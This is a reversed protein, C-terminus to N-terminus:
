DAVQRWEGAYERQRGIRYTGPAILLAGHEPHSLIVDTGPPVTLTGVTLGSERRDFFGAGHLSHTHGGREAQVVTVGAQPIPTTAPGTTVRLISVDGQCAAATVVPVDAQRDLWEYVDTGSMEIAAALTMTRHM